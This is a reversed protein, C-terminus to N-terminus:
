VKEVRRDKILLRRKEKLLGSKNLHKKNLNEDHGAKLEYNWREELSCRKVM